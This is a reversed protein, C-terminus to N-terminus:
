ARLQAVTFGDDTPAVGTEQRRKPSIWGNEIPLGDIETPWPKWRSIFLWLTISILIFWIRIYEYDIKINFISYEHEIKM